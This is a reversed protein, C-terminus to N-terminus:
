RVGYKNCFREILPLAKRLQETLNELNMICYNILSKYEKRTFVAFNKFLIKNELM